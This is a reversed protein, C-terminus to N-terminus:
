KEALTKNSIINELFEEFLDPNAQQMTKRVEIFDISKIFKFYEENECLTLGLLFLTAAPQSDGRKQLSKRLGLYRKVIEKAGDQLRIVKREFLGNIRAHSPLWAKALDEDFGYELLLDEKLEQLQQDQLHAWDIAHPDIFFAEQYCQRATKINGRLWYADGLYGYVAANDPVRAISAQLSQVAEDLRGAQLLLYGPPTKDTILAVDMWGSRENEEILKTFFSRKLTEAAEGKLAGFSETCHVCARWLDLLHATRQPNEAAAARLGELLFEAMAIKSAVEYGKPFHQQHKRFLEVAKELHLAKLAQVGQNVLHMDSQAFLSLQRGGASEPRDDPGAPGPQERGRQDAEGEGALASLMQRVQAAPVGSIAAATRVGGHDKALEACWREFECTYASGARSWPPVITQRGHDPCQVVPLAAHLYTRKEWADLHRWSAVEGRACVPAPRECQPCPFRVGDAYELRVDVRQENNNVGVSAVSWGAPLNLLQAILDKTPM